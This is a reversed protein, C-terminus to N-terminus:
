EITDGPKIEFVEIPLAGIHEKLETPTGTLAPFTGWHMPLVCKVDLLHAAKAAERPGMTFLDGIPLIAMWPEYMEGILAMDGFVCTDGAFYFRFENETEVIFGAPEGGYILQDGDQISSSHSANVMTIQLACAEVTGGKQVQVVNELGQKKLWEGIEYNCVVPCDNKKALPICDAFHDAHGHSVVILDIKGPDQLSEPISPNGTFWPDFLVRNGSPTEVVFTSHGCWIFRTEKGIYTM